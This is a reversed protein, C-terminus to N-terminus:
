YKANVSSGAVEPDRRWRELLQMAVSAPAPLKPALTYMYVDM